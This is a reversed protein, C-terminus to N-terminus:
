ASGEAAALMMSGLTEAIRRTCWDSQHLRDSDAPDIMRDFSVMEAAVWQRMLDFRHFVNVPYGAQNAVQDILATIRIAADRRDPTLLAPLFQPDMLIVDAAAQELMALGQAIADAVAGLNQMKWVANSGVQWIIVSPREDLVDRQMRAVEDPAEEGGVGRNLVDFPRNRWARLANELRQPYPVIGGEGATSSSGIAVMRIAGAGKLRAAIHAMAHRFPMPQAPISSVPDAPMPLRVKQFRCHFRASSCVDDAEDFLMM